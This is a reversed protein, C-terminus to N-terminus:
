FEGVIEGGMRTGLAGWVGFPTSNGSSYSLPATNPNGADINESIFRVAGDAMLAHVGGAHVSSPPTFSFGNDANTDFAGSGNQGCAVSNPPMITNFGTQEHQGDWIQYGRKSKVSGSTFKDSTAMARCGAPTGTTQAAWTGVAYNAIYNLVRQTGNATTSTNDGRCAESMAITNSTGDLVDRIGYCVQVGFLGRVPHTDNVANGTDGSCFMYNGQRVSPTTLGDSPCFFAPIKVNWVSWGGWGTPGGPPAVPTNGGGAQIQDYLPAQDIYPLLGVFGSLRVCNNEAGSSCPTAGAGGTGGKRYIFQNYVDHYNHLALGLQKLNNKCQSRRAAERAQQVAPLLLAILIAIIAIVVLLEILTFGRSPCTKPRTKM